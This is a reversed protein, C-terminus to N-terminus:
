APEAAISLSYQEYCYECTHNFHIYKVMLETVIEGCHPCEICFDDSDIVLLTSNM